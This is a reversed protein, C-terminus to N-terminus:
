QNVKSVYNGVGWSSNMLWSTIENCSEPKCFYFGQAADCGSAVLANCIDINEVGEAVISLDLCKALEITSRVITANKRNKDIDMVLSRDIKLESIPLKSVHSLSSYGTGFDDLSLNVGLDYLESLIKITHGPNHMIVGETIELTLQNAPVSWKDLMNSVLVPFNKDHLNFMSLNVAINIACGNNNWINLQQLAHNLVWFTLIHIHGSQEALPIFVEPSIAGAFKHQWRILAEVSNTKGSKLNIQPQYCLDMDDRELYEPLDNILKLPSIYREQLYRHLYVTNDNKHDSTLRVVENYPLPLGDEPVYSNVSLQNENFM